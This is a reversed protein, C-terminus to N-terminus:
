YKLFKHQYLPSNEVNNNQLKYNTYKLFFVGYDSEKKKKRSVSPFNLQKREQWRQMHECVYLIHMFLCVRWSSACKGLVPPSANHNCINM